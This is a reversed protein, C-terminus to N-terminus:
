APDGPEAGAVPLRPAGDPDRLAGDRLAAAIDARSLRCDYVLDRAALRSLAEAYLEMRESQRTVPGDWALGLWVLDEEIAAAYAPKSRIPDIDEIRLLVRGGAAEAARWVSFASLAHGLHLYGTPSPAFRFTPTM